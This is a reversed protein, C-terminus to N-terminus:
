RRGRSQDIVWVSLFLRQSRNDVMDVLRNYLSSCIGQVAAGPLGISGEFPVREM